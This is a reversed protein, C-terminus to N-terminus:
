QLTSRYTSCVFRTKLHESYTCFTCRGGGTKKMFNSFTREVRVVSFYEINQLPDRRQTHIQRFNDTSTCSSYLVMPEQQGM